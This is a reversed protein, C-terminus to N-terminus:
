SPLRLRRRACSSNRKSTLTKPMRVGELNTGDYQREPRHRLWRPVGGLTRGLSGPSILASTALRRTPRKRSAGVLHRNADDPSKAVHLLKTLDSYSARASSPSCMKREEHTISRLASPTVSDGDNAENEASSQRDLPLERAARRDIEEPEREVSYTQEFRAAPSAGLVRPVRPVSLTDYVYDSATV